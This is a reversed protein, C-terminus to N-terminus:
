ARRTIIRPISTVAWTAIELDERAAGAGIGLNPLLQSRAQPLAEQRALADAEAAALDASNLVAQRYITM